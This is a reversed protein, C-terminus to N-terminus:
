EFRVGPEGLWDAGRDSAPAEGDSGSGVVAGASAIALGIGFGLLFRLVM